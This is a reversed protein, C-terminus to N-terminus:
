AGIDGFIETLASPHHLILDAGCELLVEEGRYGWACGVALMGANQATYIDVDSDGVFACEASQVGLEKAIMLPVTPDPKHPLETQGQAIQIVEPMFLSQCLAKVYVDQKNSLVAIRYGRRNLEEVAEKMGEYCHDAHLYTTAYVEDYYAFVRDVQMDDQSAEAPMTKAILNRAGSGIALRVEEYSRIPYGFHEMTLNVAERISEITDALTGDLDFILAKIM